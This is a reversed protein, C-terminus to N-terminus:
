GEVRPRPVIGSGRDHANRRMYYCNVCYPHKAMSEMLVDFLLSPPGRIVGEMTDRKLNGYVYPNMMNCPCVDGNYRIFAEELYTPCGRYNSETVFDEAVPRGEIQDPLTLVVGLRKAERNATRFADLIEDYQRTKWSGKGDKVMNAVVGGLRWRAAFRVIAPLQRFNSGLLTMIVQTKLPDRGLDKSRTALYRVNALFQEVDLGRRIRSLDGRDVADCSIFLMADLDLFRNWIAPDPASLNTVIELNTGTEAAVDLYRLFDPIITSEGLGNLRVTKTRRLVTEALHEFFPLPLVRSPDFGHAGVGCMVCDLNCTNALEVMIKRPFERPSFAGRRGELLFEQAAHLTRGLLATPTVKPIALLNAVILFRGAAPISLDDCTRRLLVALTQIEDGALGPHLCRLADEVSASGHTKAVNWEERLDFRQLVQSDYFRDWLGRFTVAAEDM